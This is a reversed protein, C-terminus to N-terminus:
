AVGRLADLRLALQQQTPEGLADEGGLEVPVLELEEGLPRDFSPLTAPPKASISPREGGLGDVREGEEASHPAVNLDDGAGLALDHRGPARPVEGLRDGARGDLDDLSCAVM